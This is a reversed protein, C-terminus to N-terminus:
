FSFGINTTLEATEGGTFELRYNLINKDIPLFRSQYMAAWRHLCNTGYSSTWTFTSLGLATTLAERFDTFVINVNSWSTGNYVETLTGSAINFPPFQISTEGGCMPGNIITTTTFNSAAIIQGVPLGETWTYPGGGMIDADLASNDSFISVMQPLTVETNASQGNEDKVSLTLKLDLATEPSGNLNTPTVPDFLEYFSGEAEAWTRKEFILTGSDELNSGPVFYNVNNWDGSITSQPTASSLDDGVLFDGSFLTTANTQDIITLKILNLGNAPVSSGNSSKLSLTTDFAGTNDNGQYIPSTLAATPLSPMSSTQRSGTIHFNQGCSLTWTATFFIFVLIFM